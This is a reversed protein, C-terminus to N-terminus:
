RALKIIEEPMISQVPKLLELIKQNNNFRLNNKIIRSFHGASSEVIIIKKAKNIAKQAEAIPFPQLTIPRFLGVKKNFNKLSKVAEEAAVSVIGHAFIITEADDIYLKKYEAIEKSASIYDKIDKELVEALQSELNYCNRINGIKMEIKKIKNAEASIVVKSREKSQYGDALVFTPFKYKWANEFAKITYNYMEQPNATSYVIRLGEGNGGFCALTVEQQGYIVTGTSPGGRQIIIGVFPLRMAEAMAIPDQMLIHGPGATATFSKRGALIGGIVSFGASTEDEAQLFGIQGTKGLPSLTVKKAWGELIETAPTIPYGAMFSAGSALAAEVVAENGTIFKSIKKNFM